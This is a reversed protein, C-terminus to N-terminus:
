NGPARCNEGPMTRDFRDILLHERPPAGDTGPRRVIRGEVGVLIPAGAESTTAAYGREAAPFDGEMLVPLRLGTRCEDFIAADAMYRFHGSLALRPEFYELSTSRVLDHVPTDPTPDDALFRLTDPHRVQFHMPAEGAGTLRIPGGDTAREWRGIDDIAHDSIVDGHGLHERRLFFTSDPRLYLTWRETWNQTGAFSGSWTASRNGPPFEGPPPSGAPRKAAPRDDANRDAARDAPKSCASLVLGAALVLGLAVPWRTM